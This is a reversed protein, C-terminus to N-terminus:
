AKPSRKKTRTLEWSVDLLECIVDDDATGDLLITLWHEKNMHYAPLVGPHMMYAGKLLPDCKVDVIDVPGDRDIDLKRYPVTLGVCFWKRTDAHRFVCGDEIDSWPFDPRVSFREEIYATLDVKTTM